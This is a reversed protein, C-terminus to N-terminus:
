TRSAAIDHQWCLDRDKVQSIATDGDADEVPMPAGSLNKRQGVFTEESLAKELREEFPTAHWSVKQDEKYKNTSNPIGNGDWWKQSVHPQEDEKWHAAVLGIIPRDAPSRSLRTKGYSVSGFKNVDNEMHLPPKLWAALTTEGKFDQELSTEDLQTRSNLTEDVPQVLSENLEGSPRHNHADEEKFVKLQMSNQNTNPVSFIYESRIRPKGHPLNEMYAPFVTGPTQMEDSLKLPTPYPSPRSTSQNGQSESGKISHSADKSFSSRLSCIDTDPDFHVSKKRYQSHSVSAWPTIPTLISSNEAALIEIATNVNEEGSGETSNLPISLTSEVNSKCSPPAHEQSASDSGSDVFLEVPTRSLETPKTPQLKRISTHPLWSHFKSSESDGNNPPSFKFTDTAKRIEAPTEPLTGCAKLFKAENKVDKSIQQPTGFSSNDRDESPIDERDEVLFLSSLRNRSVLAETAKKPRASQPLHRRRDGDDKARLCVFFCGMAVGLSQDLFRLVRRFALGLERNLLACIM